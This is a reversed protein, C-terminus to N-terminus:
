DDLVHPLTFIGGRRSVHLISFLLANPKLSIRSSFPWVIQQSKESSPAVKHLPNRLGDMINRITAINWITCFTCRLRNWVQVSEWMLPLHDHQFTRARIRWFRQRVTRSTESSTPMLLLEHWVIRVSFSFSNIKKILLAVKMKLKNWTTLSDISLQVQIGHLTQPLCLSPAFGHISRWL